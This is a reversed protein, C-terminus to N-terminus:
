VEINLGEDAWEATDYSSSVAPTTSASARKTPADSGDHVWDEAKWHNDEKLKLEQERMKLEQERIAAEQLNKRELVGHHWKWAEETEKEEGRRQM